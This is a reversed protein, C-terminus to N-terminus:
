PLLYGRRLVEVISPPTLLVARPPIAIAESYGAFSWRHLAGDRVLWAAGDHEVLAGCPLCACDVSPKASLREHHLTRDLDDLTQEPYPWLSRFRRADERRCEFCPRHGAALATFEDAFFLETYCGPSMLVRRRGRFDLRCIIWRRSVWHRAKLQRNADHFCGGRNGM